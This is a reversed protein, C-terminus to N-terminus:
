SAARALRLGTDHGRLDPMGHAHSASRCRQADDWYSGGRMVRYSTWYSDWCWEWVNGHMDYLGWANPSKTRVDHTMGAANGCYWGVEALYSESGCECQSIGGNCFATTSGARCVYEWEAETLLRYGNASQNQTATGGTIHYGSYTANTITYVAAMGELTSRQNCYTLADFWTVTEVPLNPGRYDSDNWGMVATWQAQTVETTAVYFSSTLAVDHQPENLSSRCLEDPPSGMVFAGPQILVFNGPDIVTVSATDTDTLGSTDKLELVIAKAGATGYQHSATKTASYETDWTGDNEWDWRVQLTSVSDQGDSSCSADVQFATGTTGEAPSVSFCATPATNQPKETGEDKGCGSGVAVVVGILVPWLFHRGNMVWGEWARVM